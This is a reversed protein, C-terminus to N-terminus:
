EDMARRGEEFRQRLVETMRAWENVVANVIPEREADTPERDYQRLFSARQEFMMPTLLAALVAHATPEYIPPVTLRPPPPPPPNTIKM